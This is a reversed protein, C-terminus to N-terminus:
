SATQEEHDPAVDRRGLARYHWGAARWADADLCNRGDLVRAHAVLTKASAPDLSTYEPWETLVLVLDAGALAEDASAAFTLDPWKRKANPVAEPDAVVVSAGQLQIQAAVSLAPSDRVDDSHPKFAAGLVAIRRGVISGGCEERALDVMRVRRRMNIADVERLFSLAQDVGLEGARAMFARIDKPLCGGGFGLGANLFSRGIRADMGIADALHTVDGGAAECVEAMANIFSIKTALFANAAVKVLQATALDTVMRPTEAALMAAYVEDLVDTTHEQSAELDVGYVIRDPHLTDDVAHGERLFEPNWLLHADPQAAQLRASLREATGVPVTSKGVVLDGPKIVALISDMASDVYSLDAAGEGHRQPTGVCIFHVTSDQAASADTTFTLRQTDLSSALLEPFGPEHFPPKGAALAAVHDALVDVGVVEHGLSAMCAAHVAGLYGCGFVSIRM